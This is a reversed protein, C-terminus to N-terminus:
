ICVTALYYLCNNLVLQCWVTNLPRDTAQVTRVCEQYADLRLMYDPEEVRKPDWANLQSVLTSVRTLAPDTTAMAAVIDCLLSRSQRSTITSFLQAIDRLLSYVLTAYFIADCIGCVWLRCNDSFCWSITVKPDSFIFLTAM